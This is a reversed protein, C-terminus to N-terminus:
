LVNRAIEFFVRVSKSALDNRIQMRHRGGSKIWYAYKPQSAEEYLKQSLTIDVSFDDEAAIVLLPRPAIKDVERAPSFRALSTGLQAGAIPLALHTTMWGVSPVFHSDAFEKVLGPLSDYPAFVAVADIAQGENPDGAAAILAAAGLGKGLGFIKRSEDSHNAALWRVAGLVDRRELDGYTTLQGESEGHARFDFALINFGHPALDRALRLDSAKDGNFDHCLIVTRRGWDAGADAENSGPPRAPIWWGRLHLGDTAPFRIDEYTSGLVTAPTGDHLIHPRYILAMAGIYPIGVALLLIARIADHCPSGARTSRCSVNVSTPQSAFDACDSVPRFGTGSGGPGARAFSWALVANFGRLACAIAIGWYCAVAIQGAPVQGSALRMYICILTLGGVAGAMATVALERIPNGSKTAAARVLAAGVAAIPLLLYVNAVVLSAHLM